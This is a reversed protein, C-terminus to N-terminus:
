GDQGTATPEEESVETSREDEGGLIDDVNYFTWEGKESNWLRKLKMELTPDTTM